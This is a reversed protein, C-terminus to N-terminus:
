QAKASLFRQMVNQMMLVAVTNYLTILRHGPELLHGRFPFVDGSEFLYASIFIIIAELALAM